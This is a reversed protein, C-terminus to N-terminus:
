IFHLFYLITTQALSHALPASNSQQSSSLGKPAKHDHFSVSTLTTTINEGAM